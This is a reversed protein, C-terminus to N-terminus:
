PIASYYGSLCGIYDNSNLFCKLERQQLTKKDKLKITKIMKGEVIESRDEQLM